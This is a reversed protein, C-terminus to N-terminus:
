TLSIDSRRLLPEQHCYLRRVPLRLRSRSTRANGIQWTVPLSLSDYVAARDRADLPLAGIRGLLWLLDSPEGRRAAAIWKRFPVHAEVPWDEDLLPLFRRLVPGLRDMEDYSDWGIEVNRPHLAALRCAVEYSFVATLSTGAIGSVEPAAFASDDLGEVRGAFSFLIEDALEAVRRSLPYARLFLLTEHLRILDSPRRFRRAAVARLLVELRVSNDTGFRSKWEDLRDLPDRPM